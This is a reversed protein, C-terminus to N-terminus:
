IIEGDAGIYVMYFLNIQNDINISNNINKLM